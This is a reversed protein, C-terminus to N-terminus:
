SRRAIRLIATLSLSYRDGATACSPRSSRSSARLMSHAPIFMEVDYWFAGLANVASIANVRQRQGSTEVTPTEGKAGRTRQLAADVDISNAVAAKPLFLVLKNSALHHQSRPSNRHTIGHRDGLPRLLVIRAQSRTGLPTAAINNKL